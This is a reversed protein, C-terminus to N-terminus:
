GRVQREAARAARWNFPLAALAIAAAAIAVWTAPDM